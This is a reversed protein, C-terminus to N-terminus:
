RERKKKEEPSKSVNFCVPISIKILNSPSAFMENLEPIFGTLVTTTHYVIQELNIRRKTLPSFVYPDTPDVPHTMWPEGFSEFNEFRM